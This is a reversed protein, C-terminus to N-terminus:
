EMLKRSNEGYIQDDNSAIGQSHNIGKILEQSSSGTVGNLGVKRNPGVDSNVRSSNTKTAAAM